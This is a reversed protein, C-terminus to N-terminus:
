ATPGGGTLSSGVLDKRWGTLGDEPRGGQVVKAAMAKLIRAPFLLDPSAELAACARAAQDRLKGEALVEPWTAYPPPELPEFPEKAAAASLRILANALAVGERKVWAYPVGKIRAFEEASEPILKAVSLFARPPLSLPRDEEPLANHRDILHKLVALGPGDLQWANRFDDLTVAKEVDEACAEASAALALVDRGKERLRASLTDRLEPLHAVDEAAYSIQDPSLPRRTWDGAQEGKMSRLGLVRYLLYALSVPYEPGLLGWAVQTDFIVPPALLKFAHVLLEVDFKGAHLVWEGDPRGVAKALPELAALKLTDVLYVDDGGRSVQLLALRRVGPGSEFETDIFYRPAGALAAAASALEASTSVLIANM